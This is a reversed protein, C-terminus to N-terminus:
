KLKKGGESTDRTGQGDTQVTLKEIIIIDAKISLEFPVTGCSQRLTMVDPTSGGNGAEPEQKVEM